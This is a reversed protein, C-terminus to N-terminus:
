FRGPLAPLCSTTGSLQLRIPSVWDGLCRVLRIPSLHSGSEPQVSSKIAEDYGGGQCLKSRSVPYGAGLYLLDAKMRKQSELTKGQYQKPKTIPQADPPEEKLLHSMIVGKGQVHDTFGKQLKHDEVNKTSGKKVMMPAPEGLLLLTDPPIEKFSDEKCGSFIEVNQVFVLHIIDSVPTTHVSHTIASNVKPAIAHHLINSKKPSSQNSPQREQLKQDQTTHIEVEKIGPHFSRPLSLHMVDQFDLSLSTKFKSFNEKGKSFKFPLPEAHRKALKQVADVLMMSSAEEKLIQDRNPHGREPIIWSPFDISTLWFDLSYFSSVSYNCLFARFPFVKFLQM